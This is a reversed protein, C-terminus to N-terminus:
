SSISHSLILYADEIYDLYFDIVIKIVRLRDGRLDLFRAFVCFSSFLIADGHVGFERGHHEDAMPSVAAALTMGRECRVRSGIYPLTKADDVRNANDLANGVIGALVHWNPAVGSCWVAGLCGLLFM